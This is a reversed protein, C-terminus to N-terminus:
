GRRIHACPTDARPAPSRRARQRPSAPRTRCSASSRTTRRARWRRASRTQQAHGSAIRRLQQDVRPQRQRDPLEGAVRMDITGGGAQQGQGQQNRHAPTRDPGADHQGRRRQRFEQRRDHHGASRAVARSATASRRRPSEPRTRGAKHRPRSAPARNGGRSHRRPPNRSRGRRRGAAVARCHRSAAPSPMWARRPAQGPTARGARPVSRRRLRDAPPAPRARAAAPAGPPSGQRRAAPPATAASDRTDQSARAAQTGPAM